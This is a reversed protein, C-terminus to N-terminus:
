NLNRNALSPKSQVCFIESAIEWSKFSKLNSKGKYVEWLTISIIKWKPCSEYSKSKNDKKSMGKNANQRKQLKM